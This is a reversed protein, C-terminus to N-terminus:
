PVGSPAALLDLKALSVSTSGAVSVFADTEEDFITLSLTYQGPALDSPLSFGRHDVATGDTQQAPATESGLQPRYDNVLWERGDADTLHLSFALPRGARRVQWYTTVGLLDGPHFVIGGDGVGGILDTGVLVLDEGFPTETSIHVQPLEQLRHVIEAQARAGASAQLETVFNLLAAKKGQFGPITLYERYSGAVERVYVSSVYQLQHLPYQRESLGRETRVAFRVFIATIVIFIGVM